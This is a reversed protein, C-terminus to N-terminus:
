FSFDVKVGLVHADRWEPSANRKQWIYYTDLTVVSSLIFSNGASVRNWILHDNSNLTSLYEESLYPEIELERIKAPYSVKLRQKIRLETEGEGMMHWFEFLNRFSVEFRSPRWNFSAGMVPVYYRNWGYDGSLSLGKFSGRLSIRESLDFEGGVEIKRFYDSKLLGRQKIQGDVFVEIGEGMGKDVGIGMYTEYESNDPYVFVPVALAVIIFSLLINRM